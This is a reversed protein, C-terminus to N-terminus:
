PADEANSVYYDAPGGPTPDMWHVPKGAARFAALEHQIGYSNEWDGDRLVIIGLAADMLPADLPLWVDHDLPNIGTEMAVPHTHVIPCFVPVANRMLAGTARLAMQYAAQLGDPHKSYSSALYYYGSM